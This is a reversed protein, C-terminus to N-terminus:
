LDSQTGGCKKIAKKMMALGEDRTTKLIDTRAIFIYDFDPNMLDTCEQMWARLLRRARNRHVALKFAKKATILGYRADGPFRTPTIRLIFIPMKVVPDTDHPLFDAHKKITDRM